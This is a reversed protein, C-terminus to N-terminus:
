WISQVPKKGTDNIM